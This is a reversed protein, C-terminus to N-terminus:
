SIKNIRKLIHAFYEHILEKKSNIKKLCMFYSIINNSISCENFLIDEFAEMENALYDINQDSIEFTSFLKKLSQYKVEFEKFFVTCQKVEIQQSYNLQQDFSNYRNWLDDLKVALFNYLNQNKNQRKQLSVAIFIGVILTLIAILTESINITNDINFYSYQCTWYTILCGFLFYILNLWFSNKHRM